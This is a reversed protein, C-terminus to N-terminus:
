DVPTRPVIVRLVGPRSRYHFPAEMWRVEGDAAVLGHRRPIEIRAETVRYSEFDKEQDLHGLLARLAMRILGWRGVRHALYLGLVGTDLRSRKGIRFGTM